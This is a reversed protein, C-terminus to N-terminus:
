YKSARFICVLVLLGSGVFELSVLLRRASPGYIQLLASGASASSPMPVITVVLVMSQNLLTRTCRVFCDRRRVGRGIALYSPRAVTVIYVKDHGTPPSVLLFPFPAFCAFSFPSAHPLLLHGCAFIHRLRSWSWPSLRLDYGGGGRTIDIHSISLVLFSAYPHTSCPPPFPNYSLSLPRLPSLSLLPSCPRILLMRIFIMFCADCRMYSSKLPGRLDPRTALRPAATPAPRRATSSTTRGCRAGRVRTARSHGCRSWRHSTSTSLTSLINRNSTSTSTSCM